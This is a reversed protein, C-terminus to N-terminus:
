VSTLNVLGFWKFNYFNPDIKGFEPILCYKYTDLGHRNITKNYNLPAV